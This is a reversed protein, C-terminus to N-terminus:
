CRTPTEVNGAVRLGSRQSSMKKTKPPAVQRQAKTMNKRSGSLGEDARKRLSRSFSMAMLRTAALSVPILFLAKTGLCARTANLSGFAMRRKMETKAAAIGLPTTLENEVTMM